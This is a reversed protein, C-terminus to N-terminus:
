AGALHQGALCLALAIGVCVITLGGDDRAGSHAAHAAVAGAAFVILIGLATM